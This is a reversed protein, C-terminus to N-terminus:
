EKKKKKEWPGVVSLNRGVGGERRAYDRFGDFGAGLFLVLHM